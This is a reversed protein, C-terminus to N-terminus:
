VVQPFSLLPAKEDEGGAM